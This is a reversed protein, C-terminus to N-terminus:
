SLLFGFQLFSRSVLNPNEPEPTVHEENEKASPLDMIPRRMGVAVYERKYYIHEIRLLRIRALTLDDKVNEGYKEALCILNYLVPEDRLRHIYDPTYPDINRLAKTFEEDLRELFSAVDGGVQFPKTTDRLNENEQFQPLVKVNPNDILLALLYM